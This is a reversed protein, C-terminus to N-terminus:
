KKVTIESKQEIKAAKVDITHLEISLYKLFDDYLKKQVDQMIVDLRKSFPYYLEVQVKVTPHNSLNISVGVCQKVNPLSSCSEVIIRKIVQESIQISGTQFNPQVITTEGVYDQNFFIKKGKLILKKFVNHKVEIHPIPIVHKGQTKRVFLAMKIESSTRIEEVDIYHDIKGLDLASAIKNVMKESTGIILIKSIDRAHIEKKVELAHDKYFFIARKVAQIYNKEYKASTGAIRRGNFILLGDDIIAPINNNYAYYLASTSKGTGSPGSLAFIEM